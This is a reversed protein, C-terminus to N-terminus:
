LFSSFFGKKRETSFQQPKNKTCFSNLDIFYIPFKHVSFEFHRFHQFHTLIFPSENSRLHTCIPAMDEYVGFHACFTLTYLHARSFIRSSFFSTLITLGDMPM